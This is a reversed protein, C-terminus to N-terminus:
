WVLINLVLTNTQPPLFPTNDSRTQEKDFSLITEIATSKIWSFCYYLQSPKKREEKSKDCDIWYYYCNCFVFYFYVFTSVPFPYMALTRNYFFTWKYVFSGLLVKIRLWHSGCRFTKASRCGYLKLIKPNFLFHLLNTM